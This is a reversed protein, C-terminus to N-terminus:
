ETMLAFGVTEMAVSVVGVKTEKFSTVTGDWSISEGTAPVEKVVHPPDV